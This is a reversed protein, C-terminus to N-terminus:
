GGRTRQVTAMPQRENAWRRASLAGGADSSSCFPSWWALSSFGLNVGFQIWFSRRGETKIESRLLVAVAEAQERRFRVLEEYIQADQELKAVLERGRDVERQLEESTAALATMADQLTATLRQARQRLSEQIHEDQRRERTQVRAATASSLLALLAVAVGLAGFTAWHTRLWHLSAVVIERVGRLWSPPRDWLELRAVLGAMLLM